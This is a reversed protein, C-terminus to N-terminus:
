MLSTTQIQQRLARTKEIIISSLQKVKKENDCPISIGMVGYFHQGATLVPFAIRLHKRSRDYSEAYGQELVKNIRQELNKRNVFLHSGYEEFPWAKEYRQRDESNSYALFVLVSVSTYPSLILREPKQVLSPSDSSVRMVVLIEEGVNKSFVSISNKFSANIELLMKQLLQNIGEQRAKSVSAFLEQGLTYKPPTGTKALWGTKLLTSIINHTTTIKLDVANAINTLQMDGSSTAVLSLIKLAREVSQIRTEKM